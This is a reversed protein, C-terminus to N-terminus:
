EETNHSMVRRYKKMYAKYAKFLVLGDFHWNEAKCSSAHFNVLNRGETDHCLIGIFNELQLM